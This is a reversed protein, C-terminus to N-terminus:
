LHVTKKGFLDVHSQSTCLKSPIGWLRDKKWIWDVRVKRTQLENFWNVLKSCTRVNCRKRSVSWNNKYQSWTKQFKRKVFNGSKCTPFDILLKTIKVQHTQTSRIKCGKGYGATHFVYAMLRNHVMGIRNKESYRSIALSFLVRLMWVSNESVSIFMGLIWFRTYELHNLSEYWHCWLCFGPM